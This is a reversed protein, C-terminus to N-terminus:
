LNTTFTFIAHKSAPDRNHMASYDIVHGMTRKMDEARLGAALSSFGLWVGCGCEVM